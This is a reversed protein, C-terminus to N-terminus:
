TLGYLTKIRGAHCYRSSYNTGDIQIWYMGKSNNVYADMAALFGESEPDVHSEFAELM